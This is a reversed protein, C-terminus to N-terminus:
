ACNEPLPVRVSITAGEGLASDIAITGGVLRTREKMSALGLGQRTSVDDPNFGNGFDRVQLYIFESDSTLELQM